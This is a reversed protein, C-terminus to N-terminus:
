RTFTNGNGRIMTIPKCGVSGVDAVKSKRRLVLITSEVLEKIKEEYDPYADIRHAQNLILRKPGELPANDIQFLIIHKQETFAISLEAQCWKSASSSESFIVIFVKAHSIADYTLDEYSFGGTIDRPAIWCKVKNQELIHCVAQAANKNTSSYSIFVDHTM